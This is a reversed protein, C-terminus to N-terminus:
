AVVTPPEARGGCPVLTVVQQKAPSHPPPWHAPCHEAIFVVTKCIMLARV